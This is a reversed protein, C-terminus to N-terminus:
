WFRRHDSTWLAFKPPTSPPAIQKGMKQDWVDELHQMQEPGRCEDLRQLGSGSCYLEECWYSCAQVSYRERTNCDRFAQPQSGSTNELPLGKILALNAWHYGSPMQM